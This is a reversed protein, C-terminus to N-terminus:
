SSCFRNITAGPVTDPLGAKQAILRGMNMGQAGEPMACGILVDDVMEPALGKVRELAGRVAVAGMEEPRRNRLTGKKAKGVATRVSSVIYAEKAQM